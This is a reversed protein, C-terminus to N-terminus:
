KKLSKIKILGEKTTSITNNKIDNGVKAIDISSVMEKGINITNEVEVPVIVEFGNGAAVQMVVEKGTEYAASAAMGGVMSGALYAFPVFPLVSQLVAGSCGAIVAVFIEQAMIDGYQETTIEGRNLKYGYKIADVTLVTMMGIADPSLSKGAAGFKGAQCATILAASVAGEVFGNAGAFAADVGVEKLEKEDIYGNKIGEAIISYIDPGVTLAMQLMAASTGAMMSQKLIYKPKIVQSTKLNKFDEIDFENNECLDVLAKAEDETM